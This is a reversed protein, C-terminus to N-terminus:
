DPYIIKYLEFINEKSIFATAGSKAAMKRFKDDSYESVVVFRAEPFEKKLNEAVKLGNSNKLQIDLLVWDPIFEGFAANLNLGDDLEMYEDGEKTIFERLYKRFISNDDVILFRM